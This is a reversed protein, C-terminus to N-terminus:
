GDARPSALGLHKGLFALRDEKIRESEMAHGDDYSLLTKPEPTALYVENATMAAIYFDREGFQFLTPCSSGAIATIPDVKSLARMYDFRDSDIPWFRLFWDAWRPTPAVFVVCRPDVWEQLLMGYMAGFDHGVVAVNNPDVGDVGLLTTHATQLWEVETEIRKLDNITDTPPSQWPFTLQPLVSVVGQSALAKAEELYQTRNANPSEDFWHLYVVGPGSAEGGSRALYMEHGDDTAIDEVHVRSDTM